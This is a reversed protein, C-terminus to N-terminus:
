RAVCRGRPTMFYSPPCGPRVVRPRGDPTVFRPRPDPAVVRPRGYPAVVVPGRRPPVVVVPGRRPPVVVVPERYGPRAAMPRCFGRHDRAFGRGCGQAAQEILSDQSGGLPAFPAAQSSSVGAIASAAVIAAALLKNM